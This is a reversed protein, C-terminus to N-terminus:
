RLEHLNKVRIANKVNSLNDSSTRHNNALNLLATEFPPPPPPRMYSQSNHPIASYQQNHIYNNIPTNNNYMNINPTRGRYNAGPIANVDAIMDVYGNNNTMGYESVSPTWVKANVPMHPIGISNANSVAPNSYVQGNHVNHINSYCQQHQQQQNQNVNSYYSNMNQPPLMSQQNNSSYPTPANFSSANTGNNYSITTDFPHVNNNPSINDPNHAATFSLDRVSMGSSLMNSLINPSTRPVTVNNPHNFVSAFSSYDGIPVGTNSHNYNLATRPTHIRSQIQSPMYPTNNPSSRPVIVNPHTQSPTPVPQNNPSTLCVNPHNQPISSMDNNPSSRPILVNSHIRPPMSPNNVPSTRPILANSHVRPPMSPNNVPSTRPILANSHARPPMSPNNVPSTRPILANSHVRSPMSPNSIPSIRPAPNDIPSTRPILVTPHMQSPIPNNAHSTRPTRVNSPIHPPIYATNNRNQEITSSTNSPISTSPQSLNFAGANSGTDSSIENSFIQGTPGVSAYVSINPTDSSQLLNSLTLDAASSLSPDDTPTFTTESFKSNLILALQTPSNTTNPTTLQSPSPEMSGPTKCKSTTSTKLKSSNINKTSDTASPSIKSRNLFYDKPKIICNMRVPTKEQNASNRESSATDIKPMSPKTGIKKPNATKNGSKSNENSVDKSKVVRIPNNETSSGPVPNTTKNGSKSNENSVDKSKVVRIPNNETSSGPVFKSDIHDNSVCSGNIRTTVPVSNRNIQKPSQEVTAIKKATKSKVDIPKLDNWYYLKKPEKRVPEYNYTAKLPGFKVYVPIKYLNVLPKLGTLEVTLANENVKISENQPFDTQISKNQLLLLLEKLQHVDSPQKGVKDLLTSDSIIVDPKLVSTSIQPKQSKNVSSSRTSPMDESDSLIEIIDITEDKSAVTASGPLPPFESFAEPYVKRMQIDYEIKTVEIDPLNGIAKKHHCASDEHLQKESATLFIKKCFQCRIHRSQHKNMDKANEFVESYTDCPFVSQSETANEVEPDLAIKKSNTESLDDDSLRRRRKRMMKEHDKQTNDEDNEDISNRLITYGKSQNKIINIPPVRSNNEETNEEAPLDTLASQSTTANSTVTLVSSSGCATEELNKPQPQDLRLALRVYDQMKLNRTRFYTEVADMEMSVVPAVHSLICISPFQTKPYQKSLAVMTPHVKYPLEPPPMISREKKELEETQERKITVDTNPIKINKNKLVHRCQDKLYKDNKLSEKRFQFMKIAVQLCRHCIKQTIIDKIHIEVGTTVFVVDKMHDNEEFRNDFVWVLNDKSLCLRCLDYPTM